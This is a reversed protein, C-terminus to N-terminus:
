VLPDRYVEMQWQEQSPNECHLIYVTLVENRLNGLDFEFGGPGM